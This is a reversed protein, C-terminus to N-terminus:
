EDELDTTFVQDCKARVADRAVIGPRPDLFVPVSRCDANMPRRDGTRMATHKQSTAPEAQSGAISRDVLRLSSGASV